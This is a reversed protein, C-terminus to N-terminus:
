ELHGWKRRTHIEYIATRSVGYARAIHPQEYEGTALILRIERVEEETLKSRGHSSGKPRNEPRTRSGNADGRASRGKATRDAANDTRTGLFLHDPNCCLRHDCKHLVCLAPEGMVYRHALVLKSHRSFQGYGANHKVGTWEWCPTDMHPQTPGDKNVHSWFVADQQEPTYKPRGM